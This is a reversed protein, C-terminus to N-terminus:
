TPVERRQTHVSDFLAGLIQDCERYDTGDLFTKTMQYHRVANFIIRQQDPTFEPQM